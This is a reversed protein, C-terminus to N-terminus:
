ANQQAFFLILTKNFLHLTIRRTVLCKGYAWLHLLQQQLLPRALLLAQVTGFHLRRRLQLASRREEVVAASHHVAASHDDLAFLSPSAQGCLVAFEASRRSPCHVASCHLGHSLWQFSFFFPPAFFSYIFNPLFRFLPLRLLLFPLIFCIVSLFVLFDNKDTGTPSQQAIPFGGATVRAASAYVQLLSNVFQM